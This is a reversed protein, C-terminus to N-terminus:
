YDFFKQLDNSWIIHERMLDDRASKKTNGYFNAKLRFADGWEMFVPNDPSVAPWYPLNAGNPNGTAIFNAWYSSCDEAIKLDLGTWDRQQPIARLSKFVYWLESSHWAWRIEAERGPTWHSFYYSYLNCTPNLHKLMLAILLHQTGGTESRLRLSEM